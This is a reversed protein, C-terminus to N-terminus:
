GHGVSKLLGENIHLALDNQETGMCYGEEAVICVNGFVTMGPRLGAAM